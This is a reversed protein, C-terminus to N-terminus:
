FSSNKLQYWRKIREVHFCTSKQRVEKGTEKKIALQVKGYAGQGLKRIVEFRSKLRHKGESVNALGSTISATSLHPVSAVAASM